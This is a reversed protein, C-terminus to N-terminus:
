FGQKRYGMMGGSLIDINTFGNKSLLKAAGKARAGSHCIVVINKEKYKEIRNLNAALQGSPINMVGKLAGIVSRLESPERVDLLLMKEKNVLKKNLEEASIHKVGTGGANNLLNLISSFIGV